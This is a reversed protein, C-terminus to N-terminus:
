PRKPSTNPEPKTCNTLQIMQGSRIWMLFEGSELNNHAMVYQYGARFSREKFCLYDIADTDHPILDQGVAKRVIHNISHLIISAM